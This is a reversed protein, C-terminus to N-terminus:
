GSALDCDLTSNVQARLQSYGTIQFFPHQEASAIFQTRGFGDQWVPVVTGRLNNGAVCAELKRMFEASAHGPDVFVIVMLVDDIDLHAVELKM